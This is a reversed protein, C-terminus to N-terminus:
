NCHAQFGIAIKMFIAEPYHWIGMMYLCSIVLFYLKEITDDDKDDNEPVYM